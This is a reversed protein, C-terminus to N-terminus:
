RSRRDVAVAVWNGEHDHRDPWRPEAAGLLLLTVIMDYQESFVTMEKVEEPFWVGPPLNMGARNDFTMDQRAALSCAPLEVPGRTTRIFAGSKLAPESSRSWLVFGDRSVVMVARRETYSLWRLTSALLSVGYRDACGSLIEIDAAVKAPVQLRYDDFPMLLDAAFRDAEREITRAGQLIDDESCQIGEPYAHRHVLYHGFEHALTFTIRRASVIRNNYAIGWGGRPSPIRILAGELGPLPAGDVERIPDDPFVQATYDRALDPVSVPFREDSPMAANLM